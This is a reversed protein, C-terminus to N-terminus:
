SRNQQTDNSNIINDFIISSESDPDYKQVKFATGYDGDKLFIIRNLSNEQMAQYKAQRIYSVLISAEAKCREASHFNGIAPLAISSVISIIIMVCMVEVFTFGLKSERNPTRM